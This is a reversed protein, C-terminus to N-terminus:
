PVRLTASSGPAVDSEDLASWRSPDFPTAVNEDFRWLKLKGALTTLPGDGVQALPRVAFAGHEGIWVLGVADGARRNAITVHASRLDLSFRSAGPALEIPALIRLGDLPEGIATIVLHAPGLRQTSLAFRGDRDLRAPDDAPQRDRLEGFWLVALWAGPAAGDLTIRGELEAEAAGGGLDLDFHATEGDVVECNSPIADWKGRPWSRSASREPHIETDVRRVEWRGPALLEARFSGDSGVRQTFAFGDGRSFAVLTGAPDRGAPALVRGEIAGGRTLEFAVDSRGAHVDYHELEVERPAFGDATARLVFDGSERLTLVFAGTADSTVHVIEQPDRDVRFGDKEHHEDRRAFAAITADAVPRGAATVRGVVSPVPALVFDLEPPAGNEFPGQQGLAYGPADVHVVFKATTPALEVRGGAHPGLGSYAGSSVGAPDYALAGFREIATGDAARVVVAVRTLERLRLVLDRTGAEVNEAHAGAFAGDYDFADLECTARRSVVLDFRGNEDTGLTGGGSGSGPGGNYIYSIRAYPSPAGSPDVVRGTILEDSPVPELVLEVGRSEQGAAVEIPASFTKLWGSRGAVLRVFGVPAGELVFTGDASTTALPVSSPHFPYRRGPELEARPMNSSDLAITVREVPQGERDVVRGAVDGGPALVVDGANVSEGRRATLRQGWTARGPLKAALAVLWEDADVEVALQARGDASSATSAARLTEDPRTALSVGALPSGNEDLFRAQVTTSTATRPQAASAVSPTPAEARESTAPADPATANSSALPAFTVQLAAEEHAREGFIPLVGTLALGAVVIVLAAAAVTLKLLTSMLLAGPLVLAGSSAAAVQTHSRALPALVLSWARRDGDHRRDLEARLADIGVKIRWRVTGAAVGQRRAIEDSTAHEFYALLITSRYPEALKGLAEALLRQGELRAALEAPTAVERSEERGRERLARSAESRRRMRAVNRAVKALWPRPQHEREPPHRLATLWTDQVVDAAGGPDDVLRRALAGLWDAHALLEDTEWRISDTEM